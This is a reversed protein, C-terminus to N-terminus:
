TTRREVKIKGKPKPTAKETEIPEYTKEYNDLNKTLAKAWGKYVIPTVWIRALWRQKNTGPLDQGLMLVFMDRKHTIMIRDCISEFPFDDPIKVIVKGRPTMVKIQSTNEEKKSM